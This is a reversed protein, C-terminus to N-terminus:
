SEEDNDYTAMRKRKGEENQHEMSKFHKSNDDILAVGSQQVSGKKEAWEHIPALIANEDISFNQVWKNSMCTPIPLVLYSNYM